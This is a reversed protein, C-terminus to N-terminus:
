CVTRNKWRLIADCVLGVNRIDRQNGFNVFETTGSRICAAQLTGDGCDLSAKGTRKRIKDACHAKYFALDLEHQGNERDICNLMQVAAFIDGILIRRM